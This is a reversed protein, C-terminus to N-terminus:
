LHRELFKRSMNSAAGFSYHTETLLAHFQKQRELDEVSYSVTGDLRDFMEVVMELIEEPSNQVHRLGSQKFESDLRYHAAPGAMVETLSLTKGDSTMLHQPLSLDNPSYALAGGLPSMNTVASPRGFIGSLSYLGSSSGLFFRCDAALAVDLQESKSSSTAYDIVRPQPSFSSMTGDGMRIVWGGRKIIEDIALSFSSISMSRHRHVAEDISSYGGERAHVCVFWADQPVGVARFYEERAERDEATVTFLAPRNGWDRFVAYGRAVTYMAVAFSHTDLIDPREADELYSPLGLDPGVFLYKRFYEVLHRNAFGQGIDPLYLSRTSHGALITQKLVADIEICLHGIRNPFSVRVIRFNMAALAQRQLRRWFRMGHARMDAIM